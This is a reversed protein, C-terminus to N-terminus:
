KIWGKARYEEERQNVRDIYKKEYSKHKQILDKLEPDKAMLSKMINDAMGKRIKDIFRSVFNSEHIQNKMKTEM